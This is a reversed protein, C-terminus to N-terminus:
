HSALREALLMGERICADSNAYNWGGFRGISFIDHKELYNRSKEVIIERDPTPVPYAFPLDLTRVEVDGGSVILRQAVLWEVMSRELAADDPAPKSPSYSVECMVAERPRQGLATSSQHNFAIKHAPVAPDAVYLRQPREGPAKDAAIMVVKLSVAELRGAMDRLGAPCDSLGDLLAPLPMTSIIRDWSFLMGSATTITRNKMDISVARQSLEIPGARRSMARCIEGFGGDAPYGVESDSALPARRPEADQRAPAGAVREGVWEAGIGRLDRAWLKRNYPLLFHRAIGPGFRGLIWDEFHAYDGEAVKSPLGQRCEEVIGADEIQDFHQQFPYDIVQGGFAIRADRKQTEWRGRMLERVLGAVDPYPTHFCHGGMDFVCGGFEFSRCLGGVESQQELIRSPHHMSFALGAPGAGIVITEGIAM